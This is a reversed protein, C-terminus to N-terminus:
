AILEKISPIKLTVNAGINEPHKIKSSKIISKAIKGIDVIKGTRNRIQTHIQLSLQYINDQGSQALTTKTEKNQHVFSAVKADKSKKAPVPAEHKAILNANPKKINTNNAAVSINAPKPPAQQAISPTDSKIIKSKDAAILKKAPKPSLQETVSPTDTKKTKSNDTAILTKASKPPSQKAVSPTDITPALKLRDGPNIVSEKNLGNYAYLKDLPLKNKEAIINLTENTKVIHVKNNHKIPITLVAYKSVRNGNLKATNALKIDNISTPYFANAISQLSAGATVTYNISKVNPIQAIIKSIGNTYMSQASRGGGFYKGMDGEKEALLFSISALLNFEPDVLRSYLSNPNKLHDKCYQVVFSTTLGNKAQKIKTLDSNNSVLLETYDKLQIILPFSKPKFSKISDPDKFKFVTMNKFSDLLEKEKKSCSEPPIQGKEAIIKFSTPMMQRLGVAGKNSIANMDFGEHAYFNNGSEKITQALLSDENILVPKGEQKLQANIKNIDYPPCLIALAHSIMQKVASSKETNVPSEISSQTGSTSEVQGLENEKVQQHEPSEEISLSINANNIFSNSNYPDSILMNLSALFEPQYITKCDESFGYTSALEQFNEDLTNNKLGFLSNFIIALKSKYDNLAEPEEVKETFFMNDAARILIDTLEKQKQSITTPPIEDKYIILSNKGLEEVWGQEVLYKIVGEQIAPNDKYLQLIEQKAKAGPGTIEQYIKTLTFMSLMGQKIHVLRDIVENLNDADKLAQDLHNLEIESFKGDLNFDLIKDLEGLLVGLDNIEEKSEFEEFLSINKEDGSFLGFRAAQNYKQIVLKELEDPVTPNIDTPSQDSQPKLDKSDLHNKEAYWKSILGNYRNNIDANNIAM